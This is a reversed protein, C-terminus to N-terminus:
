QHLIRRDQITSFLSWFITFSFLLIIHQPQRLEVLPLRFAASPPYFPTHHGTSALLSIIIFLALLPISSKEVIIISYFTSDTKIVGAFILFTNFSILTKYIGSRTVLNPWKVMEKSGDDNRPNIGSCNVQIWDRYDLNTVNVYWRSFLLLSLPPSTIFSLISIGM